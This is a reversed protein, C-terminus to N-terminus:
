AAPREEKGRNAKSPFRRVEAPWIIQDSIIGLERTLKTVTDFTPRNRGNELNSITALNVGIAAALRMQTYGKERRWDALTKRALNDPM